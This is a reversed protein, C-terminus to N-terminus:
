DTVRLEAWILPHDSAGAPVYGSDVIELGRVFIWDIMGPEGVASRVGGTALLERIAEDESNANFDGMLIATDYQMFERFAREIQRDRIPGREAHLIVLTLETNQWAYHITQLHRHGTGKELDNVIPISQWALPDLRSLLANGFYDIHWRRQSPMFQWGTELARGLRAAQDPLPPFAGGVEQLGMIDFDALSDAIRSLDREGDLGKGRRINWTAVRLTSAASLSTEGPINEGFRPGVPQRQSAIGIHLGISVVLLLALVVSTWSYGRYRKMAAIPVTMHPTRGLKLALTQYFLPKSRLVSSARKPCCLDHPFKKM